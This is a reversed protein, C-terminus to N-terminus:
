VFEMLRGEKTEEVDVVKMMNDHLSAVWKRFEVKLATFPERGKEGSWAHPKYKKAAKGRFRQAVSTMAGTSRM